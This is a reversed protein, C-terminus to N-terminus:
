FLSSILWGTRLGFSFSILSICFHSTQSSRRQRKDDADEIVAVATTPILCQQAEKSKERETGEAKGQRRAKNKAEAQRAKGQRAKGQRAEPMINLQKDGPTKNRVHTNAIEQTRQDRKRRQASYIQHSMNPFPKNYAPQRKRKQCAGVQLETALLLPFAAM